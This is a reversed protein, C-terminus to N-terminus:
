FFCLFLCTIVRLGELCWFTKQKLSLRLVAQPCEDQCRSLLRMLDLVAQPEPRKGEDTGDRDRAMPYM